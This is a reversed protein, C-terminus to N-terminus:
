ESKHQLAKVEQQIVMNAEKEKFLKLEENLAALQKNKKALLSNLHQNNEQTARVTKVLSDREAIIDQCYACKEQLQICQKNKEELKEEVEQM